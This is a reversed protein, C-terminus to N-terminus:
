IKGALWSFFEQPREEYDAVTWTNIHKSTTNSFYKSTKCWVNDEHLYAAVCTSYSYLLMDGNHLQVEVRNSGLNVIKM